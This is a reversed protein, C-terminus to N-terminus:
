QNVQIRRRVDGDLQSLQVAKLKFEAGYRRLKRPGKIAAM